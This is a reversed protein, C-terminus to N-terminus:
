RYESLRVWEGSPSEIYWFTWGNVPHEALYAILFKANSQM